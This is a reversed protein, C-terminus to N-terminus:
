AKGASGTLYLKNKVVAKMAEIGPTFLKRPDNEESKTNFVTKIAGSFAIKLETAINIKNIGLEICRRVSEDPLDSAGHLVLPIAVRQRIQALRDFDLQPKKKYLGHATGIAIALSDIGTKAVFDVAVKPDTYLENVDVVLDDEIGGITGLEAEVPVGMLHAAEVVKKVLTINEDYPLQSGDIMISTFGARLCEMVMGYDEGHDLHMAIPIDYKESAVKAMSALYEAGAFRVTGPTAQLIIPAREEFATSIAAKLTELNHINFGCVGYGNKQADLLFKKTTVLGM